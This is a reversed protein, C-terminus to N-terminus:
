KSISLIYKYKLLRKELTLKHKNNNSLLHLTKEELISRSAIEHKLKSIITNIFSELQPYLSFVKNYDIKNIDNLIKNNNINNDNINLHIQKDINFKRYLTEFSKYLQINNNNNDISTYSQNLPTTKHFSTISHSNKNQTKNVYATEIHTSRNLESKTRNIKQKSQKKNSFATKNIHVYKKQNISSDINILKDTTDNSYLNNKEIPASPYEVTKYKCIKKNNVSRCTSSEKLRSTKLKIMEVYSKNNHSFWTM